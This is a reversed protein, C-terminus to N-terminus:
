SGVRWPLWKRLWLRLWGGFTMRRRQNIIDDLPWPSPHPDDEQAFWNELWAADQEGASTLWREMRRWGESKKIEPDIVAAMLFCDEAAKSAGGQGSLMARWLAYKGLNERFAVEFDPGAVHTTPSERSMRFCTLATEFRFLLDDLEDPPDLRRQRGLKDPLYLTNNLMGSYGLQHWHRVYSDYTGVKDIGVYLPGYRLIQRRYGKNVYHSSDNSERRLFTASTFLPPPSYVNGDDEEIEVEAIIQVIFLNAQAALDFHRELTSLCEPHLSDGPYLLLGRRAGIQFNFMRAARASVTRGRPQGALTFIGVNKQPFSEIIDMTGDTSGFDVFMLYLKQPDYNQKYVSQVTEELVDENNWTPIIFTVPPTIFM